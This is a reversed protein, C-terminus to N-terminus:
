LGRKNLVGEKEEGPPFPDLIFSMNEKLTNVWRGEEKGWSGKRKGGSGKGVGM